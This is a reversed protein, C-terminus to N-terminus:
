TLVLFTAQQEQRKQASPRYQDRKRQERIRYNSNNDSHPQSQKGESSMAMPLAARIRYDPTYRGDSERKIEVILEDCKSACKEM